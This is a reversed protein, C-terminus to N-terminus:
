CFFFVMFEGWYFSFIILRKGCGIIGKYKWWGCDCGSKGEYIEEWKLVIM